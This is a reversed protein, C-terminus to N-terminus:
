TKKESKRSTEVSSGYKSNEPVQRDQIVQHVKDHSYLYELNETRKWHSVQELDIRRLFFNGFIEVFNKQALISDNM